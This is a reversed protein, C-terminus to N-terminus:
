SAQYTCLRGKDKCTSCEPRDRSCREKRKRCQDWSLRRNTNSVPRPAPTTPSPQQTPTPLRQAPQSLPRKRSQASVPKRRSKQPPMRSGKSSKKAAIVPSATSTPALEDPSPSRTTHKRSQMDSAGPASKFPASKPNAESSHLVDSSLLSGLRSKEANTTTTTTTTTSPITPTTDNARAVRADDPIPLGVPPSPYVQITIDEHRFSETDAVGKCPTAWARSKAVAPLRLALQKLCEAQRDVLVQDRRRFEMVHFYLRDSLAASEEDRQWEIEEIRARLEAEFATESPVLPAPVPHTSESALPTSKAPASDM